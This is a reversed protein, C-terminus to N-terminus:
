FSAPCGYCVSSDLVDPQGGCAWSPDPQLGDVGNAEEWIEVHKQGLATYTRVYLTPDGPIETAQAAGPTCAPFSAGAAGIPLLATTMGITAIM